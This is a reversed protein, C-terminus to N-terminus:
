SPTRLSQNVPKPPLVVVKRGSKEQQEKLHRCIADLDYNFREALQDRWKRVEQVIPDPDM